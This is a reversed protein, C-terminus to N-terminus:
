PRPPRTSWLLLLLGALRNYSLLYLHYTPLWFILAAALVVPWPRDRRLAFAWVVVPLAFLYHHEWVVPSLLLTAAWLDLSHALLLLNPAADDTRQRRLYRGIFWAVVALSLLATLLGVAMEHSPDPLHLLRKLPLLANWSLSHLSNDRVRTGVPFSRFFPLWQGWLGWDRGGGTSVLAIVMVGLLSAVVALWRRALLWPALLVLPYLKIHGALAVLLGAAGPRIPVLLMAGVVMNLMWLNIQNFKLTRHLPTNVLLLAAVLAAALAPELGLRTGLRYCLMFLLCVMLLQGCQYFYFVLDWTAEPTPDRGVLQAAADVVGYALAFLQATLPPYLYSHLNGMQYPSRGLLVDQGATQYCLYDWDKVSHETIFQLTSFAVLLLAILPVFARWSMARRRRWEWVAILMLAISATGAFVDFDTRGLIPLNLRSLFPPILAALLALLAYMLWRFPAHTLDETAHDRNESM